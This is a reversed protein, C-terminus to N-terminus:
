NGNTVEGTKFLSTEKTLTISVVGKFLRLVDASACISFLICPISDGNLWRLGELRLFSKPKSSTNSLYCNSTTRNRGWQTVFRTSDWCCSLWLEQKKLLYIQNNRCRQFLLM